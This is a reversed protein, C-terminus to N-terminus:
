DCGFADAVCLPCPVLRDAVVAAVAAVAAVAVPREGFVVGHRACAVVMGGGCPIARLTMHDRVQISAAHM